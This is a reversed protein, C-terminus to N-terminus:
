QSSFGGDLAITQGTIFSSRQSALFVVVNAIEEPTGFRGMPHLAMFTRGAESEKGGIFDLLMETEIGAPAIANIRINQKVCEMAASRTLAIVAGKSAAYISANGRSVLAAISAMNIISGGGSKLMAPIEYKMSLLVGKVNTDFILQYDEVAAEAVTGSGRIGANNCAIDLHGYTEVTKKVLYAVEDEKTIDARIFIGEGGIEQVLRVTEMGGNVSRGCVAVKAGGKALAIATARGIGRTGGTVIAVKNELM